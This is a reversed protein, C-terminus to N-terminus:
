DIFEEVFAAALEDVLAKDNNDIDNETVPNSQNSAVNNETEKITPLKKITEERVKTPPTDQSSTSSLRLSRRKPLPSECKSTISSESEAISDRRKASLRASKRPPSSLPKEDDSEDIVITLEENPKTSKGEQSNNVTSEIRLTSGEAETPKEELSPTSIPETRTVVLQVIESASLEKTPESQPNPTINSENM